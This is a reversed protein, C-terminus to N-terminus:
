SEFLSRRDSVRNFDIGSFLAEKDYSGSLDEWINQSKKGPLIFLIVSEKKCCQTM